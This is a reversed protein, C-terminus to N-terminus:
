ILVLDDDNIINNILNAGEKNDLLKSALIYSFDFNNEWIFNIETHIKDPISNWTDNNIRDWTNMKPYGVFINDKIQHIWRHHHYGRYGSLFFYNEFIEYESYKSPVSIFGANGILNINKCVMEPYDLDELMHTCIIFDYKGNKEVDKFIDSWDETRQVNMNFINLNKIKNAKDFDNKDLFYDALHTVYKSAWLNNAGGIDLIRKNEKKINNEIYSFVNNHFSNMKCINKSIIM